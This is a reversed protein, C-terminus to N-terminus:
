PSEGGSPSKFRRVVLDLATFLAVIGAMTVVARNSSMLASIPGSSVVALCMLAYPYLSLGLGFDGGVQSMLPARLWLRRGAIFSLAIVGSAMDHPNGDFFAAM